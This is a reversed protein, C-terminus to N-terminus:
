HISALDAAIKLQAQSFSRTQSIPIEWLEPVDMEAMEQLLKVYEPRLTM